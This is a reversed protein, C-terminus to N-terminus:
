SASHVPEYKEVMRDNNLPWYGDGTEIDRAVWSGQPVVVWKSEGGPGALLQCSENRWGLWRVREGAFDRVEQWNDGTWQVAEIESLKSRYLM